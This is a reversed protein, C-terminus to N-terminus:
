LTARKVECCVYQHWNIHEKSALYEHHSSGLDLIFSGLAGKPTYYFRWEFNGKDKENPYLVLTM